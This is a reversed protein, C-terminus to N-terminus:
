IGKFIFCLVIRTKFTNKIVVYLLVFTSNVKIGRYKKKKFTIFLNLILM